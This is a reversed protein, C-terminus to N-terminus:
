ASRSVIDQYLNLFQQAVQELKFQEEFMKYANNSLRQSLMEDNALKKIAEVLENVDTNIIIGADYAAVETALGVKNSIIMPLKYKAAEIVTMGFNESYSPLVFMDACEFVKIKDAGILMGPFLVNQKATESLLVELSSRYENDDPGVCWLTYKAGAEILQTFAQFLIDLGKVKDIRGIFLIVKSEHAGKTCDFTERPIHSHDTIGYPILRVPLKLGTFSLLADQERRSTVHVFSARFLNRRVLGFYHIRKFWTNGQYYLEPFLAGHLTMVYPVGYWRAISPGWVVPFNWVGSFHVIDYERIHSMLFKLYPLSFSYHIYGQYPFYMVRHNESLLAWQNLPIDQDQLGANTTLVDVKVGMKALANDVSFDAAVAGGMKYAPHYSSTVHLVKMRLGIQGECVYEEM